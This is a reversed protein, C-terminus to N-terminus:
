LKDRRMKELVEVVKPDLNSMISNKVISNENTSKKMKKTELQVLSKLESPTMRVGGIRLVMTQELYDSTVVKVVDRPSSNYVFREIYNDATENEKTFVVTIDDYKEITKVSRKIRYADFVVIVKIKKIGQYNSLIVLLKERCHELSDKKMDFVDNWANIVNYGDVVLYEM